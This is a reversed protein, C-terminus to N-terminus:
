PTATAHFRVRRGVVWASVVNRGAVPGLRWSTAAQGGVTTRLISDSVVGGGSDVSFRVRVGALPTSQGDRVAVTAPIPLPSDRPGVQGDGAVAVATVGLATSIARRVDIRSTTDDRLATILVLRAAPSNLAGLAVAARTQYTAIFNEVYHGVYDPASVGPLVPGSGRVARQYSSAVQSRVNGVYHPGPGALAAALLPVGADGLAVVSDLEGAVCEECVLWQEVTRRSAVDTMTCAAVVTLGLVCARTVPATRGM